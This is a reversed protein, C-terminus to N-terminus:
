RTRLQVNVYLGVDQYFLLARLWFSNCTSLAYYRRLIISRAKTCTIRVMSPNASNVSRENAGYDVTLAVFSQHRKSATLKASNRQLSVTKEERQPM